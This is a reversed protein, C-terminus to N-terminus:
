MCILQLHLKNLVNALKCTTKGIGIDEDVTTYYILIYNYNSGYNTVMM